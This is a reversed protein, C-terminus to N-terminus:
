LALNFDHQDVAELLGDSCASHRDIQPRDPRKAQQKGRTEDRDRHRTKIHDRIVQTFNHAGPQM